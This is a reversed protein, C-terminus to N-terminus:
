PDIEDTPVPEARSRIGRSCIRSLMVPDPRSGMLWCFAVLLALYPWLWWAKSVTLRVTQTKM